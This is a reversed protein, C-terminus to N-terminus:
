GTPDVIPVKAGDDEDESNRGSSREPDLLSGAGAVIDDDTLADLSDTPETKEM